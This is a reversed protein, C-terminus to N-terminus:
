QSVGSSRHTDRPIWMIVLHLTVLPESVLLLILDNVSPFQMFRYLIMFCHFWNNVIRNAMWVCHDLDFSCSLAKEAHISIVTIILIVLLPLNISLKVQHEKITRQKNVITTSYIKQLLLVHGRLYMAPCPQLRHMMVDKDEHWWQPVVFDLWILKIVLRAALPWLGFATLCFSLLM